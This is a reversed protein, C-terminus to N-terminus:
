TKAMNQLMELASSLHSKVTHQGGASPCGPLAKALPTRIPPPPPKGASPRAVGKHRASLGSLRFRGEFISTSLL